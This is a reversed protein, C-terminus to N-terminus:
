ERQGPLTFVNPFSSSPRILRLWWGSHLPGLFAHFGPKTQLLLFDSPLIKKVHINRLRMEFCLVGWLSAQRLKDLCLMVRREREREGERSSFLAVIHPPLVPNQCNMGTVTHFHTTNWAETPCMHSLRAATVEERQNKETKDDNEYPREHSQYDVGM